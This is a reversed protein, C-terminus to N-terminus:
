KRSGVASFGPAFVGERAIENALRAIERRGRVTIGALSTPTIPPRGDIAGDIEKLRTIIFNHALEAPAIGHYTGLAELRAYVDSDIDITKTAPM